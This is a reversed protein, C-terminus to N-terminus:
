HAEVELFYERQNEPHMDHQALTEWEPALVLQESACAPSAEPSPRRVATRDFPNTFRPQEAAASPRKPNTKKVDIHAHHARLRM